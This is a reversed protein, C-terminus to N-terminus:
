RSKIVAEAVKIGDVAASVIGGAYGAGEGAPYLGKINSQYYEDRKIRIPSSSRTEVGVLLADDMDFGRIKRAFVKIGEKMSEIVYDPLCESLDALRIGPTYSPKVSGLEKSSRDALFDKVLQVPARYDSGIQYAKEEWRRQFEVGALPDESGYDKPNVNVLLASNANEQDRQYYSMGNTVVRGEESAAAVVVGGPCMCFTYATRGTSQCHHSLQYDAAGLKPNGAFKGYQAQDILEQPHEIRVGISFAKQAIEVNQEELVEFTDRASHGIALIVNDSRLEEKDNVIVGRIQNDEVILNNVKTEFRIQGGLSIIKERLNKVVSRLNDSGVHAKAKYSIEAPAGAEVLEDIVKRCRIDKIRTTLKGDSFTGAGGEGFQVNSEVDLEGEEWFREVDKIREEVRKGRELVLPKYGAEALILAAFLGAPGMGVVIPRHELERKDEVAQYEEDPALRVQGHYEKTLIQEENKVVVDVTYIFYIMRNSRADISEKIVKYDLLDESSIELKDIIEQRLDELEQNINLKLNSIRLM